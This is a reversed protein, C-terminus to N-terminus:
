NSFMVGIGFHFRTESKGNKSWLHLQEARVLPYTYESEDLKGERTGELTGVVTVLRGPAYDVTELYGEKLLLFRGYAPQDTQPYHDGDLPYALIELRTANKLNSSNIIAGGWIVKKGKLSASETVAQKPTLAPDTDQTAFEPTAACAALLLTALMLSPIRM